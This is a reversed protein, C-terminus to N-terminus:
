FRNRLGLMAAIIGVSIISMWLASDAAFYSVMVLALGGFCSVWEQQKKGYIFFGTGLSGWILSAILSSSNFMSSDFKM